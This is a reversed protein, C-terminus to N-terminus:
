AAVELLTIQSTSNVRQVEVTGAGSDNMFQTKYTVPSTTAPSDLVCFSGTGPYNRIASGTFGFVYGFGIETAGRFLKLNLGANQNINDKNIGNQSVLVLIKNSASSPTITATLGTDIYTTGSTSVATSTTGNVVQLINGPFAPEASIGTASLGTITGGGNITIAM